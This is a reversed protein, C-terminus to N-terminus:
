KLLGLGQATCAQLTVDRRHEGAIRILLRLDPPPLLGEVKDPWEVLKLGPAAFVERFGADHWERPGTFRYFDFHSIELGPLTHSELVTYTPSKVRGEVGLAQLLHRVFTTKGAGLDGRLEICADHLRPALAAAFAACDAEGTWHLDRSGLIPPHGSVVEEVTPLPHLLKTGPRMFESEGLDANGSDVQVLGFAAQAFPQGRAEV